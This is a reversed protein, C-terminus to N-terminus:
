SPADAVGLSRGFGIWTQIEFLWRSGSAAAGASEGWCSYAVCTIHRPTKTSGARLHAPCLEMLPQMGVSVVPLSWRDSATGGGRGGDRWRQWRRQQEEIATTVSSPGPGAEESGGDGDGGHRAATGGEQDWTDLLAEATELALRAVAGREGPTAAAMAALEGM